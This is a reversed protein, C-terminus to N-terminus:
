ESQKEKNTNFSIFFSENTNLTYEMKIEAITLMNLVLIVHNKHRTM